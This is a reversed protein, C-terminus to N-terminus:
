GAPVVALPTARAATWVWCPTAYAADDAACVSSRYRGAVSPDVVTGTTTSM